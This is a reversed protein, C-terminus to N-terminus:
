RIFPIISRVDEINPPDLATQCADRLSGAFFAPSAHYRKHFCRYFSEIGVVEDECQDPVSIFLNHNFLKHATFTVLIVNISDNEVINLKM